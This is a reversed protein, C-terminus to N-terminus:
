RVEIIYLHGGTVTYSLSGLTANDGVATIPITLSTSVYTANGITGTFSSTVFIIQQCGGKIPSQSTTGEYSTLSAQGAFVSGAFLFLICAALCLKRRADM